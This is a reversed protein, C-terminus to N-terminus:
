GDYTGLAIFRAEGYDRRDDPRKLVRGKFIRAAQLFSIGHKAENAASKEEHWQFGM